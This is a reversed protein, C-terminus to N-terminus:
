VDGKQFFAFRTYDRLPRTTPHLYRFKAAPTGERQGYAQWFHSHGEEQEAHALIFMTWDAIPDGWWARDADLIGVIAPEHEGRAILLNFLWLDGHLLCPVQIEDLPQPNSRVVELIHPLHPIDIQHDNASRLTRELRDVITQSWRPFQYGPLPLGFIEGQVDHIQRTIRGFQLDDETAPDIHIDAM